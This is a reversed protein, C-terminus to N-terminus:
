CDDTKSVDHGLLAAFGFYKKECILHLFYDLIIVSYGIVLVNYHGNIVIHFNEWM